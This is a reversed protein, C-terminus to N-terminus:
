HNSFWEEKNKTDIMRKIADESNACMTVGFREAVYKGTEPRKEDYTIKWLNYVLLTKM